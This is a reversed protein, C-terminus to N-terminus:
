SVSHESGANWIFAHFDKTKQFGLHLYLQYARHNTASVSLAVRKLGQKKAQQSHIQLLLSGLGQSQCNRRVSIQPIMSTDPSIQSAVLVGCVKDQSDLAIYSKRVSFIGCGPNDVINCLFRLCGQQSQYDRCLQYDPSDLYSDYIVEAAPIMFKREWSVIRFRSWKQTGCREPNVTDLPLALFYRNLAKFEHQLFVPELDFNFAFVQSEIRQVKRWSKLSQVIQGLLAQYTEASAYERQVYLNGIYGVPQHIVYYSYGAISDKQRRLACGALTRSSLFKRILDVAPRYDWFLEDQWYQIEQEFIGELEQPAIHSLPLIQMPLIRTDQGMFLM